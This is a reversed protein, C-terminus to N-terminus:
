WDGTATAATGEARRRWCPSRGRGGPGWPASCVRLMRSPLVGGGAGATKKTQTGEPPFHRSVPRSGGCLQPGRAEHARAPRRGSPAGQGQSFLARCAVICMADRRTAPGSAAATSVRAHEVAGVDLCRMLEAGLCHCRRCSNSCRCCECCSVQRLACTNM